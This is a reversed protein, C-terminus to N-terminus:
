GLGRGRGRGSTAAEGTAVGWRDPQQQIGVTGNAMLHAEMSLLSMGVLEREAM